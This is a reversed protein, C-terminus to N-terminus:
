KQEQEITNIAKKIETVADIGHKEALETVLESAVEVKFDGTTSNFTITNNM